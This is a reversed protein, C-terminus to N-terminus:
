GVEFTMLTFDDERLGSTSIEWREFIADNLKESTLAAHEEILRELESLPSGKGRLWEFVGDTFLFLRDKKNMRFLTETYGAVDSHHIGIPIGPSMPLRHVRRDRLVLAPHHGANSYVLECTATNFIGYFATLFRNSPMSQQALNNVRQVVRMSSGDGKSFHQFSNLSSMAILAAPTGRGSVDGILIGYLDRSVEFIGYIDGGLIDAFESRLYLTLGPIPALNSACVAQQVFRATELETRMQNHLKEYRKAKQTALVLKESLVRTLWAHFVHHLEHSGDSQIQALSALSITVVEAAEKAQVTEGSVGGTAASLEGFIDGKRKLGYILEGDVKVSVEGQTIVYLRDNQQGQQLITEGPGFCLVEALMVLKSLSEDRTHEFYRSSKLRYFIEQPVTNM